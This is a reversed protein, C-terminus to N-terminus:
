GEAERAEQEYPNDWYARRGRLFMVAGAGLYLLPFFPGWREFQRVHVREHTRTRELDDRTRALVVHGLTIAAIRLRPNLLTLVPPLVGGAAELVGDQLALHGGTARGLLALAAAPLSVPLVWLVRLLPPM